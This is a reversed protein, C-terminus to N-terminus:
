PKGKGLIEGTVPTLRTVEDAIYKEALQMMVEAKKGDGQASVAITLSLGRCLLEFLAALRQDDRRAGALEHAFLREFETEFNNM